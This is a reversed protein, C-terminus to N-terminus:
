SLSHFIWIVFFLFMSNHTCLMSTSSTTEVKTTTITAATSTDEKTTTGAETITTGADSTTTGTETTTTEAENTTTGAETTTGSATTATQDCWRGEFSEACGCTFDSFLGNIVNTDQTEICIGDNLCRNSVSSFGSVPVDCVKEGVEACLNPYTVDMGNPCDAGIPGYDYPFDIGTNGNDYYQCISFTGGNAAFSGGINVMTACDVTACGLRTSKQNIVATFHGCMKGPNCTMDSYLYDSHENGWSTLAASHQSETTHVSTLAFNEGYVYPLYTFGAQRSHEWNCKKAFEEASRELDMDYVLKSLGRATETNGDRDALSGGAANNRWDNHTDVWLKRKEDTM